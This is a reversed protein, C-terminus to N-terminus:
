DTFSFDEARPAGNFITQIMPPPTALKRLHTDLWAGDITIIAALVGENKYLHHV